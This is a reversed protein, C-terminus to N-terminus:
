QLLDKMFVKVIKNNQQQEVIISEITSFSFKALLNDLKYLVTGKNIRYSSLKLKRLVPLNSKAKLFYDPYKETDIEYPHLYLNVPQHQNIKAFARATFGYPFLRLYGGGCAPIEKGLVNTISLPFEVISTENEFEINTIGGPFGKWGYRETKAPMISSDYEFGLDVLMPFAWSTKPLVSFAPARFGLTKKGTIQEITDKALKTDDYAEQPTLKFLQHHAYGHVAVEHGAAAIEKVLGPFHKAVDGLIFFTGLTQHKNLLQLIARTNSVVRETPPLQVKFYDRMSINIGCEVDVTFASKIM